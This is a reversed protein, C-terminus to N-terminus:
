LTFRAKDLERFLLAEHESSLEVLPPRVTAWDTANGYRAKAAKIAPVIPYREFIARIHNLASQQDEADDAEWAAALKSIAAPNINATASICGRAGHRMGQLLFRESGPFVAFGKSAFNDLYGKTNEWDGSSDKIGSITDPYTELLRVILPITLAIQSVPPITTCTFASAVTM